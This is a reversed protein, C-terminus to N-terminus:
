FGQFYKKSRVNLFGMTLRALSHSVICLVSLVRSLGGSSVHLFHETCACGFPVHHTFASYQKSGMFNKRSRKVLCILSPTLILWLKASSCHVRRFERASNICPVTGLTSITRPGCSYLGHVFVIGVLTLVEPMNVVLQSSLM